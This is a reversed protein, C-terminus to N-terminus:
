MSLLENINIQTFNNEKNLPKFVYAGQGETLNVHIDDYVVPVGEENNELKSFLDYVSPLTNLYEVFAPMQTELIAGNNQASQVNAKLNADIYVLKREVVDIYAVYKTFNDSTLQFTLQSRSPEFRKGKQADEGWQLAGYVETAQSFKIHSFCLINWVAYRVGKAALDNIYLDIMQCAKGDTTYTNAPDGSFISSGNLFNTANWCCSGLSKWNQDFFNWGNDFWNSSSSGTSNEWYSASRVFNVGEPIAFVTGRGYPTVDSDNTQLKIFKTAEDLNVSTFKTSLKSKIVDKIEAILKLRIVDDIRNDNNQVQLKTWNGKPAITKFIRENVNAIYGEIKLLQSVTLKPMITIFANAADVGFISITQSLRRMFEGPRSALMKLVSIDRAILLSEVKSNFTETKNNYLLNYAECVRSYTKGYENPHLTYLLRKWRETDRAVDDNLNSTNQLLGLIFRRDKRSFKKFKTNTKMTIDGESMGIALRMVDTASNLVVTGGMDLVQKVYAIMNEKFPIESPKITYGNTLLYKVTVSQEETWRAPLNGLKTFINQMSNENALHLVKYKIKDNLPERDLEEQTFWSQPFGVYMCIQKVWYEGDSMSLVEQPFNKYVMYEDMKRNDGTIEKFAPEYLSWWTAVQADSCTILAKICEKSLTFGFYALNSFITGLRSQCLESNGSPINILNNNLLIIEGNKVISKPKNAVVTKM